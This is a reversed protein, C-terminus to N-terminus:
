ADTGSSTTGTDLVDDMAARSEVHHYILSVNIVGPLIQLADIYDMVARQSDTECVLVCRSDGQVALDLAPHQDVFTKVIGAAHPRHQVVLSSIHLEDRHAVNRPSALADFM